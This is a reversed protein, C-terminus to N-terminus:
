YNITIDPSESHLITKLIAIAKSESVGASMLIEIVRKNIKRRHETDARRAEDELKKAALKENEKLTLEDKLRKEDAAKKGKDAEEALPLNKTLRNLISEKLIAAEEEREQFADTIEIAMLRDIKEQVLPANEWNVPRYDCDHIPQFLANISAKRSKEDAEEKEKQAREKEALESAKKEAAEQKKRLDEKDRELQDQENRFDLLKQLQDLQNSKVEQAEELFEQFVEESLIQESLSQVAEILQEATATTPSLIHTGLCAIRDKIDKVRNEEKEKFLRQEEEWATVPQRIQEAIPDLYDKANAAIVKVASIRDKLNASVEMARKEIALRTRRVKAAHAICADRGKKTTLDFTVSLAYDKIAKLSKERTAEDKFISEIAFDELTALETTKDKM